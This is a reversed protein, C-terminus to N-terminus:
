IDYMLYQFKCERFVSAWTTVIDGCFFLFFFFYSIVNWSCAPKIILQLAIIFIERVVAMDFIICTFRVQLMYFNISKGNQKVQLSTPTSVYLYLHQDAPDQWM